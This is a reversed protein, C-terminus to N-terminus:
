VLSWGPGSEPESRSMDEEESVRLDWHRGAAGRDGEEGAMQSWGCWGGQQGQIRWAREWARAKARAM